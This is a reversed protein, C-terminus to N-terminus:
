DNKLKEINKCSLCNGCPQELGLECSYTLELPVKESKAYDWIQKKTYKALPALIEIAGGTYSDFIEQIKNIFRTDCDVYDTDGHIGIAIIGPQNNLYMLASFLFFANRGWVQGESYVKNSIHDIKILNIKYFAAIKKAAQYEQETSKQGYNIFLGVVEVEQKKYFNICCTSDIGGSFLIYILTKM